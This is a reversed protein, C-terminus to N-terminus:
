NTLILCVIIGVMIINLILAYITVYKNYRFLTEIDERQFKLADQIFNFRRRMLHEEVDMLIEKEFEAKDENTM